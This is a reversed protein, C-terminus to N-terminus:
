GKEPGWSTQDQINEHHPAATLWEAKCVSMYRWLSRGRPDRVAHPPPSGQHGLRGPVPQLEKGRQQPLPLHGPSPHSCLCLSNQCHLRRGREVDKTRSHFGTPPPLLLTSPQEAKWARPHRSPSFHTSYGLLERDMPPEGLGRGDRLLASICVPTEAGTGRCPCLRRASARLVRGKGKTSEGAFFEGSCGPSRIGWLRKEKTQTQRERM